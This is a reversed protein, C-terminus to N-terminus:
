TAGFLSELQPIFPAYSRWRQLSRTYIPQRAQWVSATTLTRDMTKGSDRLGSQISLFDALRDAQADADAVLTEYDLEFIRAAFRAAWRQM